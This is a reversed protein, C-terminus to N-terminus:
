DGADVSDLDFPVAESPYGDAQVFAYPDRPDGGINELEVEMGVKLERAYDLLLELAVQDELAWGTSDFVTPQGRTGSFHEPKQAVDVLSPGIEDPSLRQCEGERVAQELFDPCVLSRQLVPLPVEFKGPFDSGVANIHVWPKLATESFVPGRGIEVSTCTTLIDATRVLLGLDAPSVAEVDLNLFATRALFSASVAPNIDYVLVKEIEFLRALGHLQTVAQAGCGILGVTRSDEAALLRSAVASAAGTRLATLFTSDALGVLHGTNTDYASVTSIITPLDCTVPNCPHYGVVKITVQEGSRMVPMWEVLGANPASYAFGARAPIVTDEPNYDQFAAMLRQIMEDMLMNLGVKQAITRIHDVTLLLTKM